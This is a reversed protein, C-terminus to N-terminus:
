RDVQYRAVVVTVNDPGGRDLALQLLTRAADHPDTHEALIPAIDADPVPETLGDSCFVLVDGDRVELKHIEAFVGESPGGLVNTVVHRRHHHRAEDASIMGADVLAQVLTHDTTVQDLQGDRFLYARSDGAHVVYLDNAVSYAMTLTTGMGYLAPNSRPESSSRGTPGSSARACSRSSSGSRAAASTSSGSSRIRSSRRSARSPWPAPANVPRRAGMGDAVVILYGEEESFPTQGDSPLSTACIEMTKALRAVLFHDENRGRVKGRDTVGSFSIAVRSPRQDERPPYQGTSEGLGPAAEPNLMM